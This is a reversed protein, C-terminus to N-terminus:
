DSQHPHDGFTTSVPTILGDRRVRSLYDFFALQAFRVGLNAIAGDGSAEFFVDYIVYMFPQKATSLIAVIRRFSTGLPASRPNHSVFRNESSFRDHITLRFKLRQRELKSPSPCRLGHFAAPSTLCKPRHPYPLLDYKHTM